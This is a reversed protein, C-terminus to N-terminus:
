HGKSIATTAVFDIGGLVEHLTKVSCAGVTATGYPLKGIRKIKDEKEDLLL